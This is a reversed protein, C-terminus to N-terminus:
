YLLIDLATDDRLLLSHSVLFSDLQIITYEFLQSDSSFYYFRHNGSPLIQCDASNSKKRWRKALAQSHAAPVRSDTGGHLLLLPPLGRSVRQLPSIAKATKPSSFWPSGVGRRPSTDSLPGFLALAAPLHPLRTECAHLTAHLALAGGFGGGCIAVRDPSIGLAPANATIWALLEVGEHCSAEAPLDFYERTRYEALIGVMGRNACHLAFSALDAPHSPAWWGNHLFLCCSLGANERWGEPRFIWVKLAADDPFVKWEACQADDLLTFHRAPAPYFDGSAMGDIHKADFNRNAVKAPIRPDM